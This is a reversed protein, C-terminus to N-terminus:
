SLKWVKATGNMTGTSGIITLSAYATAPTHDSGEIYTIQTSAFRAISTGTLWTSQAQGPHRIVYEARANYFSATSSTNIWGFNSAGTAGSGSPASSSWGDKTMLTYNYSTTVGAGGTTALRLGITQTTSKSTIEILIRYTDQGTGDFVDVLSVRGVGTFSVTGDAAVSASGSDVVTSSPVVVRPSLLNLPSPIVIWASGTYLYDNANDTQFGRDGAVMGTQAARETADAWRFYTISTSPGSGGSSWSGSEMRYETNDDTNYFVAGEPANAEQAAMDTNDGVYYNARATLADQVSEALTAMSPVIGTTDSLGPYQIGDPTTQM